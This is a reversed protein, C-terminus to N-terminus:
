LNTFIFTTQSIELVERAYIFYPLIFGCHGKLVQQSHSTCQTETHQEEGGHRHALHFRRRHRAQHRITRASNHKPCLHLELTQITSSYLSPLITPADRPRRKRWM